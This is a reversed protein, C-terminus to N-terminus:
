RTLLDLAESEKDWKSVVSGPGGSHFSPGSGVFLGAGISGGIAIMQMHRGQLSRSLVGNGPVTEIDHEDPSGYGVDEKTPSFDKKEEAM